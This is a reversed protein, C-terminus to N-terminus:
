PQGSQGHPHPRRAVTGPKCDGAGKREVSIRGSGLGDRFVFSDPRIAPASPQGTSSRALCSLAALSGLEACRRCVPAVSAGSSAVCHHSAPHPRQARPCLVQEHSYAQLVGHKTPKRWHRCLWPSLRVRIVSFGACHPAAGSRHPDARPYVQSHPADDKSYGHRSCARAVHDHNQCTLRALATAATSSSRNRPCRPASRSPVAGGRHALQKGTADM